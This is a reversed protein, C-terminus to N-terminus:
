TAFLIPIPRTSSFANGCFFFFFDPIRIALFLKLIPSCCSCHKFLCGAEACAHMALGTLIVKWGCRHEWTAVVALLSLEKLFSLGPNNWLPKCIPFYSGRVEPWCQSCERANGKDHMLLPRVEGGKEGLSVLESFKWTKQLLDPVCPWENTNFHIQETEMLVTLPSTPGQHGPVVSASSSRPHSTLAVQQTAQALDSVVTWSGMNKSKQFSEERM